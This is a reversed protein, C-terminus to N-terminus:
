CEFRERTLESLALLMDAEIRDLQRNVERVERELRALEAAFAEAAPDVTEFSVPIPGM